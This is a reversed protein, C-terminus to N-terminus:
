NDHQGCVTPDRSRSNSGRGVKSVKGGPVRGKKEQPTNITM